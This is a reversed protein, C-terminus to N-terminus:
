RVICSLLQQRTYHRVPKRGPRSGNKQNVRFDSAAFQQGTLLWNSSAPRMNVSRRSELTFKVPLEPPKPRGVPNDVVARPYARQCEAMTAPHCLAAMRAGLLGLDPGCKM